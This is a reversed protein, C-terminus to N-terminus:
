RRGSRPNFAPSWAGPQDIARQQTYVPQVAPIGGPNPDTPAGPLGYGVPGAGPTMSATGGPTSRTRVAMCADNQDYTASVTAGDPPEWFFRLTYSLQRSGSVPIQRPLWNMPFLHLVEGKKSVIKIDVHGFVPGDMGAKRTVTGSIDLVGDDVLVRPKSLEVVESPQAKAVAKGKAVLDVPGVACGGLLSIAMGTLMIPLSCRM